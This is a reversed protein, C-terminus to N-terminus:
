EWGPLGAPVRLRQLYLLHVGSTLPLVAAYVKCPHWPLHAATAAGAGRAGALAFTSGSEKKAQSVRLVLRINLCALCVQGCCNGTKLNAPSGLLAQHRQRMVLLVAGWLKQAAAIRGAAHNCSSRRGLSSWCSRLCRRGPTTRPCTANAAADLKLVYAHALRQQCRRNGYAQRIKNCNTSGGAM